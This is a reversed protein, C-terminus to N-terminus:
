ASLSSVVSIVQKESEGKGKRNLRWKERQLSRLELVASRFSDSSSIADSYNKM